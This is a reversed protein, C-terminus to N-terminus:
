KNKYNDSKQIKNVYIEGYELQEKSPATTGSSHKFKLINSM